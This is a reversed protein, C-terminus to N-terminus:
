YDLCCCSIHHLSDLWNMISFMCSCWNKLLSQAACLLNWSAYFLSWNTYSYLSSPAWNAPEITTDPHQRVRVYMNHLWTSDLMSLKLNKKIPDEPQFDHFAKEDGSSVSASAWRGIKEREREWNSYDGLRRRAANSSFAFRHFKLFSCFNGMKSRRKEASGESLGCVSHQFIHWFFYFSKLSWTSAGWDVTSPHFEVLPFFRQVVHHSVPYLSTHTTLAPALSSFFLKLSINKRSEISKRRWWYAYFAKM